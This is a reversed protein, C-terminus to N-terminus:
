RAPLATIGLEACGRGAALASRIEAAVQRPETRLRRPSIHLVVIGHASMRANRALTEEWDRPSLHWQRSDIEVAVCAGPWWADPVGIFTRGVFLRPNYVPDPLRERKVLGRLDGEVASRVGEAVEALVARLRATGQAQGRTLEEALQWVQVRRRQVADAVVARVERLDALGRVTDAVARAPPVYCVSGVPFVMGPMVSTRHLRVFGADQRRRATPVLVDIVETDPARVRHFALGAPGTIASGPGAYLLAATERQVATPTGTSSLYVGPLLVQWPGGARLRHRLAAESMARSRLQSRTIVGNQKALLGAVGDRDFLAM